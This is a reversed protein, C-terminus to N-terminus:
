KDFSPQKMSTRLKVDISRHDTWTNRLEPSFLQFSIFSLESRTRQANKKIISAVENTTRYSNIGSSNKQSKRNYPPTSPTNWRPMARGTRGSGRPASCDSWVGSTLVFGCKGTSWDCPELDLHVQIKMQVLVGKSPM